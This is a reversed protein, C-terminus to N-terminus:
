CFHHQYHQCKKTSMYVYVISKNELLYVVVALSFLYIFHASRMASTSIRLYRKFELQPWQSYIKKGMEIGLLKAMM